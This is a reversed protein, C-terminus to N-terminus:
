PYTRRQDKQTGGRIRHFWPRHQVLEISRGAHLDCIFEYPVKPEMAFSQAGTGCYSVDLPCWSGNQLEDFGVFRPTFKGHDPEEFGSIRISKRALNVFRFHGTYVGDVPSPEIEIARFVYDSSRAPSPKDAKPIRDIKREDREKAGAAVIMLLSAALVSLSRFTQQLM